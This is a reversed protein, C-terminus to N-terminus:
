MICVNDNSVYQLAAGKGMNVCVLDVVIKVYAASDETHVCVINCVLDVVIKVYISRQREHECM